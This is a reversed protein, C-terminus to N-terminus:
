RLAKAPVGVITTGSALFSKVVVAGAGIKIRDAITVGGIIKAGAGIMVNDGIKPCENTGGGNGIVVQGHIHCNDGIVTNVNVVNNFHFILLGKGIRCTNVEMGIRVGLKNRRNQYYLYPLIHRWRGLAHFSYNYFDCLRSVRQWRWIRIIWDSRLCGILFHLKSPYMYDLYTHKEYALYERLLKKSTVKYGEFDRDKSKM